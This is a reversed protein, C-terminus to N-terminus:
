LSSVGEAFQYEATPDGQVWLDTVGDPWAVLWCARGRVEDDQVIKAWTGRRFQAWHDSRVYRDM